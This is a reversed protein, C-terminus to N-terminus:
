FIFKIFGSMSVPCANGSYKQQTLLFDLQHLRRAEFQGFLDLHLRVDVTYLTYLICYVTYLICDSM